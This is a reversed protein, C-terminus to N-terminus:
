KTDTVLYNFITGDRRCIYKSCYIRGHINKPPKTGPLEPHGQETDGGPVWCVEECYRTVENEMDLSFM